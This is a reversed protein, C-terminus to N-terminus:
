EAKKIFNVTNERRSAPQANEEKKYGVTIAYYLEYGEPVGLAKAFEPARDSKFLPTVLGIWCTGINLSEAALLMNQIAAACDTHPIMASKEGSVTIVTPAGYFLNYNEDAGFKELHEDELKLMAEKSAQNLVDILKKDQIVTFHWSQENHASPAYLGAKIILDLEEQKIQEPSYSRVSRRSLITKITENM